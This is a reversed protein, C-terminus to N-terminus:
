FALGFVCLNRLCKEPNRLVDSSEIVLPTRGTHETIWDFLEAQQVFGLDELCVDPRSRIYSNLVEAPRRILFCHSLELLWSRDVSPLLHHVMHKQYWIQADRPAAGVLEDAVSQWSTSQAKLIETRGPHNLGTEHLYFAYLPEDVVVCDARNEWSRMLATSINRPGSWMAIRRTM